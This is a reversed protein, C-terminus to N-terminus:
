VLMERLQFMSWPICVTLVLLFNGAKGDILCQFNLSPSEPFEQGKVEEPLFNGVLSLVPNPQNM